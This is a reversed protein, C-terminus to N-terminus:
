LQTDHMWSDDSDIITLVCNAFERLYRPEDKWTRADKLYGIAADLTNVARELLVVNVEIRAETSSNIAEHLQESLTM